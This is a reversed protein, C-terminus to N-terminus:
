VRGDHGASALAKGDTSYCLRFAVPQRWRMTGLRAVAGPPLPDGHADLRPPEAAIVGTPWLSALSCALLRPSTLPMCLSRHTFRCSASIAKQLMPRELASEVKPSQHGGGNM